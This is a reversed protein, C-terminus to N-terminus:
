KYKNNNKPYLMRRISLSKDNNLWNYVIKKAYTEIQKQNDKDNSFANITLKSKKSKQEDFLAKTYEKLQKHKNNRALVGARSIEQQRNRLTEAVLAADTYKVYKSYIHFGNSFITFSIIFSDRTNKLDNYINVLKNQIEKLEPLDSIYEGKWFSIVKEIDTTKNEKELLSASINILYLLLESTAFNDGGCGTLHYFFESPNPADINHNLNYIDDLLEHYICRIDKKDM